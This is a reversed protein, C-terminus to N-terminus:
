APPNCVKCAGYGREAAQWAPMGILNKSRSLTPCWDYHYKSGSQTVVVAANMGPGPDPTPEPEPEPEPEPAPDPGPEPEPEPEPAPEPVYGSRSWWIGWNDVYSTVNGVAGVRFVKVGASGLLSLVSEDPHGYPNDAGYSIVAYDPTAKAVLAASTGDASGHHSVKLVDVHGPVSATLDDAEADGTFYYSKGEYEMLLVASDKNSDGSIVTPQTFEFDVGTGNGIHMGSAVPTIQLGKSAAALLVDEWAQASADIEPAFASGVELQDIVAAMGGIHDADPHSMVLYDVRDYGRGKINDVVWQGYEPMGADILMTQGNPLEIFTCDGQGVDIFNVKLIPSAKGDGNAFTLVMKAAEARTAGDQANLTTNVGFIGQEVCWSVQTTAWASVTKYDSYRIVRDVDSELTGGERSAYNGLMVALQERTVPDDPGFTNTDGYGSIVGSARAWEIPAGYWQAYDVDAFDPADAPPNGAYNWLMTAVQARTVGEDPGFSGDPYGSMIGQEVVRDIVGSTEAWHGQTDSFNSALASPALTLALVFASLAAAIAAPITRRMSQENM